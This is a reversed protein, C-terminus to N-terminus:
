DNGKMKLNDRHALAIAKIAQREKLKKTWEKCKLEDKGQWKDVMKKAYQIDPRIKNLLLKKVEALTYEEISKESKTEEVPLENHALYYELKQKYKLCELEYKVFKFWYKGRKFKSINQNTSNNYAKSAKNFSEQQKTKLSIVIPDIKSSKVDIRLQFPLKVKVKKSASKKTLEGWDFKKYEKYGVVKKLEDKLKALNNDSHELKNWFLRKAYPISKCDKILQIGEEWGGNSSKLYNIIEENVM